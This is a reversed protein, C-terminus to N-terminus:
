KKYSYLKGVTKEVEETLKESQILERINNIDQDL